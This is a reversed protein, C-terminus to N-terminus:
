IPIGLKEGVSTYIEELEKSPVGLEVARDGDSDWGMTDLSHVSHIIYEESILMQAFAQSGCLEEEEQDFYVLLVNKSRAPIKSLQALVGYCIAMGSANDIAGPCNRESDLHAGLVIYDETAITAPLITYVNTGNFPNFLLDVIPNVNPLKYDQLLPTLGLTTIENSLYVVTKKREEQTSRHFIYTGDKLAISGSLQAVLRKQTKLLTTDNQATSPLVVQYFLFLFLICRM